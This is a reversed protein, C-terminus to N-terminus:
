PTVSLNYVNPSTSIKLTSEGSSGNPVFFKLQCLGPDVRGSSLVAAPNGNVTIAPSLCDGTGWALLVEGPQAPSAPGVLTYDAHTILPLSAVSFLELIGSAINVTAPASAQGNVTVVVPCSTQGAVADPTLANLQWGTAGSGVVPGSNYSIAAPLGCVTVSAGGLAFTNANTWQAASGLSQGFIAFWTEPPLPEVKLDAANVIGNSSISPATSLPSSASAPWLASTGPYAAQLQYGGPNPPTFAIHYTGDSATQTAGLTLVPPAFNLTARSVETGNALFVLAFHGSGASSPSVRARITMSYNDGPIITLPGSNVFTQQTSSATIHISTGNADSGPQVVATGNGDVGWGALGNAFNLSVQGASGTYQFSYVNIDATGVDGCLNVCIQIVAQAISPPVAGSLVYNAVTGSGTTAQATLTIPASAIPGGQSDVLSGTAQSSSINLSLKTRPRFYSDILYTLATPDTEPLVHRPYAYWSQFIVHSPITGGQAEWEAYHNEADTMWQADSLDTAWGNYIIGFPIARQQLAQRMSEVNPKWDVQWNVDFHFFAFPAGAVARWADIGATYQSLWDGGAPVPEIDGVIVNPFVTRVQLVSQLANAAIQRPTWNCANPGSYLTSGHYFPEDFALYQLNGGLQQIRTAMSLALQGAFGEVGMGCTANPTLPPFEVALAINHSNLYSFILQLTADSFSGPSVSFLMEPYLKFVQIRSSATTWPAGPAFLDLYDVSGIMNNWAAPSIPSFWITQTTTSQASCVTGM